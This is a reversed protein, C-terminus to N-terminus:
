NGAVNQRTKLEKKRREIERIIESNIKGFEILSQGAALQTCETTLNFLSLAGAFFAQRTEEEANVSGCGNPYVSRIYEQFEQNLTKM